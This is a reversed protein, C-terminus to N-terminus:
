IKHLSSFKLISYMFFLAPPNESLVMGRKAINLNEGNTIERGQRAPQPFASAVIMGKKQMETWFSTQAVSRHLSGKANESGANCAANQLKYM